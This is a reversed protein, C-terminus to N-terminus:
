HLFVKHRADARSVHAVCGKSDKTRTFFFFNYQLLAGTQEDSIRVQEHKGDSLLQPLLLICVARQELNLVDTSICVGTKMTKNGSVCFDFLHAFIVPIYPVCTLFQDSPVLGGETCGEQSM